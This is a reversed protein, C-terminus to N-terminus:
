ERLAVAANQTTSPRQRTPRTPDTDQWDRIMTMVETIDDFARSHANDGTSKLKTLDFVAIRERELETRYPEQALDADGIRPMGGWIMKSLELASDDQSVFLAIRPRYAGMRRIQMQFVDLDVDPAVLLANKIKDAGGRAIRPGRISRGRLAELTVWNGMSHAVVNIEKISQHSALTDLLEELADRSFNASERDYTYSRLRADGRSPWTFLVPIAPSKSDHVIQAFRYVADDFRNNFGHVFVLVKNRGTKKAASEIATAFDKKDIYGASVTVFDRKPDGPLASPWQVHGVKRVTDPPISVTIAAYSVTNAREGDFMEGPDNTSRRRTTAVLVPVRATGEITEAVPVLVGQTPRSACGACFLSAGVAAALVLRGRSYV